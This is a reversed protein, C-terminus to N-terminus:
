QRELLRDRRVYVEYRALVAVAEYDELLRAFRPHAEFYGLASMPNMANGAYFAMVPARLAEFLDLTEDLYDQELALMQADPEEGALRVLNIASPIWQNGDILGWAAASHYVAITNVFDFVVVKEGAGYRTLLEALALTEPDYPTARDLYYLKHMRYVHLGMWGLWVAAAALALGLCVRRPWGDPLRRGRPATALLLVFAAAALGLFLEAPLTHYLWWKGQLAAVLFAALAAALWLEVLDRGSGAPRRWLGLALLLGLALQAPVRWPLQESPIAFYLSGRDAMLGLYESHLLLLLAGLLVATAAAVAVDYRLLARWSGLRAAHWAELLLPLLLFYPKLWILAAALASAVCAWGRPLAPAEGRSEALSRALWALYPLFGIALLHERQGTSYIAYLAFGFAAAIVLGDRRLREADTASPLIRRMLALAGLLAAALLLFFARHPSLGTLAALEVAPWNLYFILPPNPDRVEVYLRAGEAWLDTAVLYWVVDGNIAPHCALIAAALVAFGWALWGSRRALWARSAADGPAAPAPATM